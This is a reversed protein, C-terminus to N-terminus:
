LDRYRVGTQQESVQWLRGATESDHARSNTRVKIPSGWAEQFGGPGIYDGGRVDVSTAAYLTPLAGTAADQALLANGLNVVRGMWRSGGMRPGASQLNTAAWGPHCAAALCDHGRLDFRRQLEHTFLLNALKSQGYVQWRKYSKRRHLDDFDIRGFKHASSSVNVVRSGPTGLLHEFLLGTLAFHGLHNTGFQMEFGDVTEHRPIAMIGANNILVDLRSH